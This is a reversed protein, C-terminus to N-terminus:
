KASRNDKYDHIRLAKKMFPNQIKEFAKKKGDLSVIVHTKDKIKDM